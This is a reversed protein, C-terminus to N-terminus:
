CSITGLVDAITNLLIMPDGSKTICARIPLNPHKEQFRSDETYVIIALLPHHLIIWDISAVGNGPMRIDLIVLDPIEKEFVAKVQMGNSALFVRHLNGELERKWFERINKVDDAFLITAVM